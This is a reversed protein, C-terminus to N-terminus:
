PTQVGGIGSKKMWGGLLRGVEDLLRSAHEYGNGKLQGLDRGLRIKYRLLALEIDAQRLSTAADAGKGARAAAVLHRQLAFANEQTPLALTFRYERAYKTTCPILWQLLDYMKAFIPSESM